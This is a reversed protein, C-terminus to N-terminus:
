EIALDLLEEASLHEKPERDIKGSVVEPLGNAVSSIDYTIPFIEAESLGLFGALASPGRRDADVDHYRALDFTQGDARFVTVTLFHQTQRTSQLSINGLVALVPRGAEIM